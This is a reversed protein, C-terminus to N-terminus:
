SVRNYRLRIILIKICSGDVTTSQILVNAHAFLFEQKNTDGTAALFCFIVPFQTSVILCATCLLKLMARCVRMM